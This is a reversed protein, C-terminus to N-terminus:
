TGKMYANIAADLREYTAEWTARYREIWEAADVLSHLDVKALRRQADRSRRIFGANELVKLHRSIAPQSIAFRETLENVSAEGGALQILIGRRTTDSLAFFIADLREADLEISM